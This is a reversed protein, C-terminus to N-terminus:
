RMLGSVLSRRSEAGGGGSGTLPCQWALLVAGRVGGAETPEVEAGIGGDGKGDQGDGLEDADVWCALGTRGIEM